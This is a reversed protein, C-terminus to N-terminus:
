IEMQHYVAMQTPSMKTRIVAARIALSLSSEM